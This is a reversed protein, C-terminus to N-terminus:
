RSKMTFPMRAPLSSNRSAADPAIGDPDQSTLKLLVDALLEAGIVQPTALVSRFESLDLLFHSFELRSQIYELISPRFDLFLHSLLGALPTSMPPPGHPRGAVPRQRAVHCAGDGRTPECTFQKDLRRFNGQGAAGRGCM